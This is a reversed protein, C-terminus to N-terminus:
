VLGLAFLVMEGQAEKGKGERRAQLLRQINQLTVQKNATKASSPACSVFTGCM